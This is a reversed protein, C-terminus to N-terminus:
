KTGGVRLSFEAEGFCARAGDVECRFRLVAREDSREVVRLNAVLRSGPEVFRSMKVKRAAIPTLAGDGLLQHGLDFISELLLSLPLVPKNPFHDALFAEGGTLVRVATAEEGPEMSLVEDFSPDFPPVREGGGQAPADASGPRHIRAFRQRLEEPDNFEEMPLLPGLTDELRLIVTDGVSAAAHYFVADDTVSDITTDLLITDGVAAQGLITVAGVVGAVPRLTFDNAAMVNWAGLQGLAEGVISPLLVSESNASACVFADATTVHKLGLAHCRPDLELIQDVFHFV